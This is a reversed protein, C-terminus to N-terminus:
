LCCNRLAKMHIFFDVPFVIFLSIQFRALLWKRVMETSILLHFCAILFHGEAILRKHIENLFINNTMSTKYLTLSHPFHSQMGRTYLRALYVKEGRNIVYNRIKSTAALDQSVLRSFCSHVARNDLFSEYDGTLGYYYSIEWTWPLFSVNQLPIPSLPFGSTVFWQCSDKGPLSSAEVIQNRSWIIKTYRAM